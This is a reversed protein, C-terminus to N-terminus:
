VHTYSRISVAAGMRLTTRGVGGHPRLPLIAVAPTCKKLAPTKRGTDGRGSRWHRSQVPEYRRRTALTTRSEIQSRIGLPLPSRSIVCRKYILWAVRHRQDTLGIQVKEKTSDSPHSYGEAACHFFGDVLNVDLRSNNIFRPPIGFFFDWRVM